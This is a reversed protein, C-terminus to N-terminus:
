FGKVKFLSMVGIGAGLIGGGWLCMRFLRKIQEMDFALPADYFFYGFLTIAVYVVGGVLLISFVSLAMVVILFLLSKM